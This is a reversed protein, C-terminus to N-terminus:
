PTLDYFPVFKRDPLVAAPDPLGLMGFVRSPVVHYRYGDLEGTMRMSREVLLYSRKIAEPGGFSRTDQLWMSACECARELTTGAWAVAKRKELLLQIPAHYDEELESLMQSQEVQNRRVDKVADWRVLDITDQYFRQVDGTARGRKKPAGRIQMAAQEISAHTLWAPFPLASEVCYVYAALVGIVRPRMRRLIRLEDLVVENPDPTWDRV